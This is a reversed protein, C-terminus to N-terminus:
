IKGKLEEWFDIAEHNWKQDKLMEDGTEAIRRTHEALIAPIDFWDSLPGHTRYPEQHWWESGEPKKLNGNVFAVSLGNPKTKDGHAHAFKLGCIECEKTEDSHVHKCGCDLCMERKTEDTTPSLLSVKGLPKKCNTCTRTM